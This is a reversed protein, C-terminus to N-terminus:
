EIVEDDLNIESNIEFNQNGFDLKNKLSLDRFAVDLDYGVSDGFTLDTTQQFSYEHVYFASNYAQFGHSVFTLGSGKPDSLGSDFDYFLISKCIKPFLIECDDRAERSSLKESTPLFVYISVNSVIQQRFGKGQQDRHQNDVADSDINRSKSASVGGLVVFLWASDSPQKTYAEVLRAISGGASIRLGKKLILNGSAPLLDSSSIEYTFTESDIVSIVKQLGNYERFASEAKIFEPSGTAITAGSDNMLFRVTKRNDVNILKFVGNFEPENAYNIEIDGLGNTWDHDTSTTLTGVIGDRLLTDIGVNSEAGTMIFNNGAKLNHDECVVTVIKGSSELSSVLLNESFLDTIEPLKKQLLTVVDSAIL